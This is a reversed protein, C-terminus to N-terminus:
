DRGRQLHIEEVDADPLVHLDIHTASSGSIPRFFYYLGKSHILLRCFDPDKETGYTSEFAICSPVADKFRAPLKTTLFSANPLASSEIQMDLNAAQRGRFVGSGASILLLLGFLAATTARNLRQLRPAVLVLALALLGLAFLPWVAQYLVYISITSVVPVPIDLELPNLGFTKYYSSLYSWGDIFTLAVFVAAAEGMAKGISLPDVTAGSPPPAPSAELVPTPVAQVASDQTQLDAM